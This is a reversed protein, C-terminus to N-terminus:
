GATSPDFTGADPKAGSCVAPDSGRDCPNGPSPDVPPGEAPGCGLVLLVVLLFRM